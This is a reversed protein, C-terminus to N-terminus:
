GDTIRKKFSLSKNEEELKYPYDINYMDTTIFATSIEKKRFKNLVYLPVESLLDEKLQIEKWM